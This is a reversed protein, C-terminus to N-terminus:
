GSAPWAFPPAPDIALADSSEALAAALAAEAARAVRALDRRWQALLAADPSAGAMAEDLWRGFADPLTALLRALLLADRPALADPLVMAGTLPVHAVLPVAGPPGIAVDV